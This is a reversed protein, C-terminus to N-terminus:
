QSWADFIMLDSQSSDLNAWLISRADRSITFGMPSAPPNAPLKALTSIRRSKFDFFRITPGDPLVASGSVFYAIGDDAVGWTHERVDPLVFTENGGDVPVSWLGSGHLSRVFYFLKGDPSEFGHSAVGTTIRVATGGISSVKWIQGIEGRDSRFYIWKGDHSWSPKEDQSPEWTLRVSKSGDADIVYIDRNGRTQSSFVLREGDPSWQPSIVVPGRHFTVQRPDSGDANSVWIETAGSRNSAFAVRSGDPSVAPHDDWQTSGPLRIITGNSEGERHWRWLNVDL